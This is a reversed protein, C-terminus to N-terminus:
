AWGIYLSRSLSAFASATASNLCQVARAMLRGYLATKGDARQIDTFINKAIDPTIAM